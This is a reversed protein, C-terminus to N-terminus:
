CRGIIPIFTDMQFNDNINQSITYSEIDLVLDNEYAYVQMKLGAFGSNAEQGTFRSFLCPPTKLEKIFGYPYIAKVSENRLQRLLVIEVKREEGGIITNKIILPGFGDLSNNLIYDQFEKVRLEFPKKEFNEDVIITKSLVNKLMLIKNEHIEIDKSM